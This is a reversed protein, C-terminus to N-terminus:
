DVFKQALYFQTVRGHRVYIFVWPKLFNAATAPLSRKGNGVKVWCSCPKDKVSANWVFGHWRHECSATATRHCPGLRIRSGVGFGDLTRYFRTTFDLENVRGHSYAVFLRSGHLLYYGQVIGNGRVQVHYRHGAADYDHAVEARSEGLEIAGVGTWPVLVPFDIARYSPPGVVFRRFTTAGPAYPCAVLAGRRDWGAGKPFCPDVQYLGRWVCRLASKAPTQYAGRSCSGGGSYTSTFRLGPRLKGSSTWPEVWGDTRPYRQWALRRAPQTGVLPVDLKLVGRDDITANKSRLPVRDAEHRLPCSYAGTRFIACSWTGRRDICVGPHGRATAPAACREGPRLRFGLSLSVVCRRAGPRLGVAALRTADLRRVGVSALAPGWTRMHAENWRDVCTRLAQAASPSLSTRPVHERATKDAECGVLAVLSAAVLFRFLARVVTM